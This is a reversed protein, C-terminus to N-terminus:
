IFERVTSAIAAPPAVPPNWGLTTRTHSIDVQLSDFLRQVVASKGAAGAVARLLGPPVSVLWVPRHMAVAIMRVLEAVGLDHGDSVLFVEGPARPHGICLILLDVLNDLAVMSRRNRIKGFPLPLGKRVLKVLNLFNAKVGPGYVLPPRVVVVELGTALALAALAQEAEWKSLGYPDLPAPVDAASFPQVSTSEGNVKISSVFIFRKVGAAVAQRALHLTAEVNVQRYAALPDTEGDSMVHVRAATHVVADCGALAASWDTTAGLNGVAVQGGVADKRVAGRVAKGRRTLEAVLASGVFGTAGTVLIM